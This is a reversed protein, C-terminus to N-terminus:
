DLDHVYWKGDTRKLGIDSGDDYSVTASDGDQSVTTQESALLRLDEAPMFAVWGPLLGVCEEFEPSGPRLPVGTDDDTSLACAAEYEREAAARFFSKTTDRPDSSAAAATGGCGALVPVVLLAALYKM